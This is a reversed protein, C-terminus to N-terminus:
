PRASVEKFKEFAKEYAQSILRLCRLGDDGSPQPQEERQLCSVFYELESYYPDHNHFGFRRKIDGWITGLSSKPSILVWMNKATGCIQVSQMHDKSFWGVKVTAIPGNQFNLMCSAVDELDINFMRRLYSELIDAEGFYWSLLDIMHSGLDLLVGGGVLDKNFWWSPVPIPGVRDSRSSFPGGSINTAEVVQVKGFFGELIKQRVKRLLPHFRLDYGVMLYVGNKRISSLIRKGEEVNRALPKELFIHKGAEAAKVAAELHLFNPLSIIAADLNEDKLLDEYSVYRNKVGMRRAFKLAKESVDAVGVVKADRLLLANRLHIEGQFGLGIIGLNVKKLVKVEHM